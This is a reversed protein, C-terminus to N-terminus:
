KELRSIVKKQKMGKIFKSLYTLIIPLKKKKYFEFANFHACVLVYM